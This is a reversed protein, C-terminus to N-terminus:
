KKRVLERFKAVEAEDIKYTHEAGPFQASRVEECYQTMAQLATEALNAYRKVYRPKIAEYYGLMDWAIINQGDCGLGSGVGWTLIDLDQTIQEAIPPPIAEVEMGFGGAEQVALADEYVRAASEATRGQVKFGGLQAITHPTLGVHSACPIGADTIAKLIHKVRKGGQIKVADAGVEQMLRAANRLAMEPTQYSQYPLPSLLFTHPAGRRVAQGLRVVDEMTLPVTTPHGLLVMAISNGVVVMDVGAQEAIHATTADPVSIVVLKKKKKMQQLDLLSLKKLEM